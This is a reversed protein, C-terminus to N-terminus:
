NSILVTAHSGHRGYGHLTVRNHRGAKTLAKRIHLTRREGAHLHRAVFRHGNVTVVLRKLGHRANRIRVRSEHRSLRHFSQRAAHAAGARVTTLVPDCTTVHGAVDSVQVVVRAPSHNDIKSAILTVPDTTGSYYTPDITAVANTIDVVHLDDIGGADQFIAKASWQGDANTFFSPTPCHPPTDDNQPVTKFNDYKCDSPAAPYTGPLTAGLYCVAMDYVGGTNTTDAYPYLRIKMENNDATDIGTLHDATAPDSDPTYSDIEGGTVHFTRNKYTDYDDSLNKPAGDRPDSQGGPVLVAFYYYGDRALQNADPGGNTWVFQKGEYQNCNVNGNGNHCHGTGDHTTNLTTFAAGAFAPAAFALAGTVAILPALLRAKRTRSPGTRM